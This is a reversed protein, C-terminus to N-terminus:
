DIKKLNDSKINVKIRKIRNEGLEKVTFTFQKYSINEEKSPMKMFLELLLGALSESEGKITDFFDPEISLTKCYDHLSIKGEFLYNQEDIKKFLAKNELSDFEDNIEGFFEEIVDELTVLGVVGGHEDFVMAIHVHRKRFDEFLDNIKRGEHVAFFNKRVIKQWHFDKTENLHSLLDKAYLIGNTKDVHDKYVPFRSYGSEKILDLLEFYDMKIDIAKMDLRSVMIQKATMKGFNIVGKLLEKSDQSSSENATSINIIHNIQSISIPSLGKKNFTKGVWDGVKVFVLSLPTCLWNIFYFSNGTFKAFVLSYHQAFVKPIVEGFFVILLTVLPTLVFEVMNGNKGFIQWSVYTSLIIISINVLNNIILITALLKNREALMEFIRREVRNQSKECMELEETSLAFFAVESGSIFASAALLFLLTLIELFVSLLPVEM